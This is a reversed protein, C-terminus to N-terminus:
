QTLEVLDVRTPAIPDRQGSTVCGAPVDDGLAERDLKVRQARQRRDVEVGGPSAARADRQVALELVTAAKVARRLRQNMLTDLQAPVAILDPDLM